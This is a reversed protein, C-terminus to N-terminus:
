DRAELMCDYIALLRALHTEPAVERALASSDFTSIEPLQQLAATLSETSAEHYIIGNRGHQVIEAAASWDGCIVPIGRLLAEIPVLPQGEYWLSPFVLARAKALHDQVEAPSLWGTLQADPNAARIADTEPGDGVFTVPFDLAKAAKALQLAGKEPSLRGVFLLTRNPHADVPDGFNAIPNSVHHLWTLRADRRPM